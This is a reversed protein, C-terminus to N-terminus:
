SREQKARAAQLAPHDREVNQLRSRVAGADAAQPACKLYNRLQEVEGAFDKKRDLINALVLHTQPFQHMSDIRELRRASTEAADLNNLNCNAVANFYYGEPFDIPDLELAHGSLDAAEQWRSEMAALRALEIYPGMYNGDAQMANTFANRADDARRSQEYVQGLRLWAAAYNPYLAIAERFQKEAEDIKKKQIATEARALAKKAGGPAALNTVSVLTGQVKEAPYLLITGANIYGAEQNMASSLLIVSSRYGVALAGLECGNVAQSLNWAISSRTMPFDWQIGPGTSGADPIVNNNAGLQFGFTGNSSVNAETTRRSSCSRQIVVGTPIANGDGMVVIGFIFISPLGNLRVANEMGLGPRDGKDTATNDTGTTSTNSSAGSVPGSSTQGSQHASAIPVLVSFLLSLLVTRHAVNFTM